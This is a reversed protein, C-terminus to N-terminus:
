DRGAAYVQEPTMYFEAPISALAEDAVCAVASYKGIVGATYIVDTLALTEHSEKATGRPCALEDFTRRTM